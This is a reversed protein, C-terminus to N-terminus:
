VQNSLVRMRGEMSELDSQVRNIESELEMMEKVTGTREYLKRLQELQVQKAKIRQDLDVYQETVDQTWERRSTVEGLGTVLDVISGYQGSPVRVVISVTRGQQKTGTQRTEQVYGGATRVAQSIRNTADDADKIRLDFQANLVLKRDTMLQAPAAAGNAQNPAKAAGETAGAAPAPTASDKVAEQKAGGAGCAVLLASLLVLIIGFSVYRRKM